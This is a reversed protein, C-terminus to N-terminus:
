RNIYIIYIYVAIAAYYISSNGNCLCGDVVILLLLLLEDGVFVLCMSERLATIRGDCREDNM